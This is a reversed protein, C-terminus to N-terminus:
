VYWQTTGNFWINPSTFSASILLLITKRLISQHLNLLWRANRYRWLPRSLTELWWGWAQKSLRQNLRLDFFIDFSRTVPRQTPFERAFPWYRPFHKWKIVDDHIIFGHCRFPKLLIMNAPVSVGRTSIHETTKQSSGDTHNISLRRCVSCKSIFIM